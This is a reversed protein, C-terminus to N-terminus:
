DARIRRYRLFVESGIAESRDLRWGPQDSQFFRPLASQGDVIGPMDRAGILYPVLTLQITDVLDASFFAHNVQPGGELLVRRVGRERRLWDLVSAPDLLERAFAIVDCGEVLRSLNEGTALPLDEPQLAVGGAPARLGQSLEPMDAGALIIPRVGRQRYSDRFLQRDAPPLSSRAIMVPVPRPGFDGDPRLRPPLVEPDDAAVSNKGVIVVDAAERHEDMRRRAVGSTLGHWTGDPRMVRGDLTMAMNLTVLPLDSTSNM